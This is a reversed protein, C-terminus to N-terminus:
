GREVSCQGHPGQAADVFGTRGRAISKGSEVAAQHDAAHGPAVRSNLIRYEIGTATFQM